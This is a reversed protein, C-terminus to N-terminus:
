LLKETVIGKNFDFTSEVVLKGIQFHRYNDDWLYEILKAKSRDRVDSLDLIQRWGCRTRMEVYAEWFLWELESETLKRTVPSIAIKRNAPEKIDNWNEPSIEEGELPLPKKQIMVGINVEAILKPFRTVRSCKSFKLFDTNLSIM